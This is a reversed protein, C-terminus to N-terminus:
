PEDISVMNRPSFELRHHSRFIALCDFDLPHLLLEPSLSQFSIVDLCVVITELAPMSIDEEFRTASARSYFFLSLGLGYVTSHTNSNMRVRKSLSEKPLVLRLRGYSRLAGASHSLSKYQTSQYHFSDASYTLLNDIVHDILACWEPETRDSINYGRLSEALLQTYKPVHLGIGSSTNSDKRQVRVKKLNQLRLRSSLARRVPPSRFCWLGNRELKLLYGLKDWHELRYVKVWEEKNDSNWEVTNQGNAHKLKVTGYPMLKPLSDHFAKTFHRISGGFLKTGPSDSTKTLSVKNLPMIPDSNYRIDLLGSIWIEMHRQALYWALGLSDWRTATLLIKLYRLPVRFRPRKYGFPDPKSRLSNQYVASTSPAVFEIVKESELKSLGRVKVRSLNIKTM